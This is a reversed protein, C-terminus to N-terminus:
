QLRTIVMSSGANLDTNTGSSASQAWNVCITNTANTISYIAKGSVIGLRGAATFAANFEAGVDTQSTNVPATNATTTNTNATQQDTVMSAAVNGGGNMSVRWGNATIGNGDFNLLTEVQYVAGNVLNSITLAPDCTVTVTTNRSTTSSKYKVQVSGVGGTALCNTGDALCVQTGNVTLNNAGNVSVVGAGSIRMREGGSTGFSFPLNGSTGILIQEGSPGSTWGAATSGTGYIQFAFSRTGNSLSLGALAATGANSNLITTLTSANQSFTLAINGGLTTTGTGLFNYTPNDTVNGFQLTSWAAGTRGAAFISTGSTSPTADAAASITFSGTSGTRVQTNKQDAAAGSTNFIVIPTTANSFTHVGTWTPVIAQSLAHTSDSREATVAVGNVATLGISGTPNAFSAGAPCNTGDSRCVAVNDIFINSDVNLTGLGKDSGTPLGITMGGDGYIRMFETPSAPVGQVFMAWDSSNTGAQVGLGLSVGANPSGIVDVTRNSDAGFVTITEEGIVSDAIILGDFTHLGTWTPTFTQDVALSGAGVIPNPTATIGVGGSVSTVTGAGATACTGDGRLFHSVDCSGSWLSIVDASAAATTVYTSASGKLIGTAPSFLNFTAALVPLSAGLLAGIALGTLRGLFKKM